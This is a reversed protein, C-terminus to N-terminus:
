DVMTGPDQSISKLELQNAKLYDIEWWHLADADTWTGADACELLAEKLDEVSLPREDPDKRLCSMLVNQLDDPLSEGIRDSPRTPEENLQKLCVDVTSDGDFPPVGALLTFGVAGISYLDSRPDAMTADRVSEPSMYMPTGTIGESRTLQAEDESQELSKVLGFDLVKVMDLVGASASVLINSPKIDRHIMGLQHAESLSGCIQTLLSIVRGAPQRGFEMVLQDLTIGDIYEMVYFFDGNETRGYDYIDITNPHRLRCTMQVEREFREAAQPSVADGELVKVAVDRRLLNHQGRYVSGMGGQGLVDGLEYQGMRRVRQHASRLRQALLRVSRALLFLGLGCLVVLLLMGLFSRRLLRMPQYAEDVDMETAIGIGYEPLWTWAGVVQVGRYDNYGVVNDGTAGRTAHDAMVTLPKNEHSVSVKNLQTIDVGPDRISIRLPSTILPDSDLMGAARLHHEFRSQSILVGNRDFAYTEGTEGTRAVSLLDSFRDLPDILLALCGTSRAGDVIPAFACMIAPSDTSLSGEAHIPAPLFFPRSVGGYTSLLKQKTDEPLPLQQGILEDHDSSVVGGASDMVVWGLDSKGELAQLLAVHDTEGKISDADWPTASESHKSLLRRAISEVEEDALTRNAVQESEILWMRLGTVNASLISNLNSRTLDRLSNQVLQGIWLAVLIALAVSILATLPAFRRAQLALKESSSVLAGSTTYGSTNSSDSDTRRSLFQM